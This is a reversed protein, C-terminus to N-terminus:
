QRLFCSALNIEMGAEAARVDFRIFNSSNREKRAKGGPFGLIKPLAHSDRLLRYLSRRCELATRGPRSKKYVNAHLSGAGFAAYSLRHVYVAAIHLPFGLLRLLLSHHKM